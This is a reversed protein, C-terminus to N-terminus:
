GNSDGGSIALPSVCAEATLERRAIERARHLWTGVTGIPVELALAIEEYSLDALAYLLLADRERPRMEALACELRARFASGDVRAVVEDDYAVWRDVGSRGYARLRRREGRWRRSALNTAIGYLWPLVSGRARCTSRREFALTFTEAALEDALDPGVRRHLYGYIADFHRGFLAEFARPETLSRALCDGDSAHSAMVPVTGSRGAESEATLGPRTM